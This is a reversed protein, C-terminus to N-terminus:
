YREDVGVFMIDVGYSARLTPSPLDFFCLMASSLSLRNVSSFVLSFSSRLRERIGTESAAISKILKVSLSGFSKMTGDLHPVTSLRSSGYAGCCDFPQQMTIYRPCRRCSM